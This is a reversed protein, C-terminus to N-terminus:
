DLTDRFREDHRALKLEFDRVRLRRAVLISVDPEASKFGLTEIM